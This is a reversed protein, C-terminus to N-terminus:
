NPFQHRLCTLQARTAYTTALRWKHPHVRRPLSANSPLAVQLDLLTTSCGVTHAPNDTNARFCVITHAHTCQIKSSRTKHSAARCYVFLCFQFLVAKQQACIELITPERATFVQELSPCAAGYSRTLGAADCHAEKGHFCSSSRCSACVLVFVFFAKDPM